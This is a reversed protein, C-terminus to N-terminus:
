IGNSLDTWNQSLEALLHWFHAFNKIDLLEFDPRSIAQEVGVVMRGFHEVSEILFTLFVAFTQM